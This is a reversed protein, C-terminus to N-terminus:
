NDAGFHFYRLLSPVSFNWRYPASLDTPDPADPEALEKSLSLPFHNRNFKEIVPLSV